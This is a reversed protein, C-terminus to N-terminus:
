IPRTALTEGHALVGLLPLVVFIVVLIAIGLALSAGSDFLDPGNFIGEAIGTDTAESRGSRFLRRL